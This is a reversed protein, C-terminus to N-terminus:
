GAGKAKFYLSDRRVPCENEYSESAIYAIRKEWPWSLFTEM